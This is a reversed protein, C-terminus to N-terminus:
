VPARVKQQSWTVTGSRVEVFQANVRLEDGDRLLTGCLVADVGAAQMAALDGDDAAFRRAAMSSRVMLSELGSLSTAIADPLSFALFETDPDPRLFRFPLVMLRTVPQLAVSGYAGSALAERLDDAM